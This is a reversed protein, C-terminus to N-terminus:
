LSVLSFIVILALLDVAAPVRIAQGLIQASAMSVHLLTM